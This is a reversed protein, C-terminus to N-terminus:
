ESMDEEAEEEAEEEEEEEEEEAGGWEDEDDVPPSAVFTRKLEEMAQNLRQSRITSGPGPRKDPHSRQMLSKWAREADKLVRPPSALELLMWPAPSATGYVARFIAAEVCEFEPAARRLGCEEAADLDNLGCRVDASSSSWARSLARALYFIALEKEGLSGALGGATEVHARIDDPRSRHAAFFAAKVHLFAVFSPPVGRDQELTAAEIANKVTIYAHDRSGTSACMRDILGDGMLQIQYMRHALVEWGPPKSEVAIRRARQFELRVLAERIEALAGPGGGGSARPVTTTPPYTTGVEVHGVRDEGRRAVLAVLAM